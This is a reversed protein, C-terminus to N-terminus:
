NCSMDTCLVFTQNNLIQQVEDLGLVSWCLILRNCFGTLAMNFKKHWTVFATVCLLLVCCKICCVVICRSVRCDVVVCSLKVCYHQTTMCDHTMHKGHFIVTFTSHWRLINHFSNHTANYKREDLTAYYKANYQMWKKVSVPNQLKDMHRSLHIYM